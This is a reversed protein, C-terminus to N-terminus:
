VNKSEEVLHEELARVTPFDFVLSPSLAMQFEKAVMSMLSVSSLSDMGAEMFPSDLELEDDTAMVDKVFTMLQKRVFAADLGKPKAPEVSVPAAAAMQQQGEMPMMQMQQMMPQQVQPTMKQIAMAADYEVQGDGCARALGLSRDLTDLAKDRAGFALHVYSQLILTMAEPQKAEMKQFLQIAETTARMADQFKETLVLMQANWYLAQGRLFKDDVKGAAAVAEAAVGM